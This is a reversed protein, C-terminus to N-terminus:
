IYLAFREGNIYQKGVYVLQNQETYALSSVLLLPERDPIKLLEAEKKGARCIEIRKKTYAIRIHFDSELYAFLSNDDFRQNLLQAYQLPFYSEEIAVPERNASRLRRIYVMQSDKPLGAQELVSAEPKVLTNELMEGGPVAGIMICMESFGMTQRLNKQIKQRSVFTGKGQKREILGKAMLEKLAKRVTIVSVHFEKAMEIEPLLQKGAEYEGSIIKEELQNMLQKYLPIVNQEELM